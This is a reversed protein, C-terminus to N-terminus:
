SVVRRSPIATSAPPVVSISIGMRDLARIRLGTTTVADRRWSFASSAGADTAVTESASTALTAATVTASCTLVSGPTSATWVPMACPVTTARPKLLTKEPLRSVIM